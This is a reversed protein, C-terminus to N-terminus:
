LELFPLDAAASEAIRSKISMNIFVLTFISSM